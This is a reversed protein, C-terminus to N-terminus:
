LRRATLKCRAATAMPAPGNGDVKVEAFSIEAYNPNSVVRLSLVASNRKAVSQRFESVWPHDPELILGNCLGIRVDGTQDRRGMVFRSEKTARYESIRVKVTRAGKDLGWFAEEIAFTLVQSTGSKEVSVVTGLFVVTDPKLAECLSGPGVCSTGLALRVAFAFLFWSRKM